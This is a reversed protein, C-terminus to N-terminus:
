RKTRILSCHRKDSDASISFGDPDIGLRHMILYSMRKPFEEVPKELLGYFGEKKFIKDTSNPAFELEGDRDTGLLLILDVLEESNSGLEDVTVGLLATGKIDFDPNNEKFMNAFDKAIVWESIHNEDKPAENLRVNKVIYEWEEDVNAYRSMRNTFAAFAGEHRPSFFNFLVNGEKVEIGLQSLVINSLIDSVLDNNFPVGRCCYESVPHVLQNGIIAAFSVNIINNDHSIRIFALDNKGLSPNERTFKEVAESAIKEMLAAKDQPIPEQQASDDVYSRNNTQKDNTKDTKKKKMKIFVFIAIAIILIFKFM